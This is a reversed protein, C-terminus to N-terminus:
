ARVDFNAEATFFHCCSLYSLGGLKCYEETQAECDVAPGYGSATKGQISILVESYPKIGRVTFSMEGSTDSGEDTFNENWVAAWLWSVNYNYVPCNTLPHTWKISVMNSTEKDVTCNTPMPPAPPM